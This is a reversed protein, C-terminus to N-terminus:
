FKSLDIGTIGEVSKLSMSEAGKMQITVTHNGTTDYTHQAGQKYTDEKTDGWLIKGETITGELMPIVFNALNHTIVLVQPKDAKQSITITQKIKDNSVIIHGERVTEGENAEILVQLKYTTLGRSKDIAQKMWEVDTAIEFKVNAKVEFDLTSKGSEVEYNNKALVIADMQAQAIKIVQRATGCQITITAERSDYTENKEITVAVTNKGAKGNKSAPICWSQNSSITWDKNTTFAVSVQDALDSLTLENESDLTIKPSIVPEPEPTNGNSGGDSCSTGAMILLLCMWLTNIYKKM